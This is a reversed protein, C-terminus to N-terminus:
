ATRYYGSIMLYLNGATFNTAGDIYIVLTSSGPTVYSLGAPLWRNASGVINMQVPILSYTGAASAFPLGVVIPGANLGTGVGLAFIVYMEVYCFPGVRCYSAASTYTPSGCTMSGASFTPTWSSWSTGAAGTGQFVLSAPTTVTLAGSFTAAGAVALTGAVGVNGSTAAVTFLNAGVTFLSGPSVNGIGVNGSAGRIVMLDTFSSQAVPTTNSVSFAIDQSTTTFLRTRWSGSTGNYALDMGYVNAGQANNGYVLIGPNLSTTSAALAANTQLYNAVSAASPPAFTGVGASSVSAVTTGVGNCFNVGGSGTDYNFYVANAGNANLVVGATTARISNVTPSNATGASYIDLYAGVSLQQRAATLGGFAASGISSVVAVTTTGGCFRTGGTGTNNYNLYAAGNNSNSPATIGINTGDAWLGAYTQGVILGNPLFIGGAVTMPGAFPRTQSPYTAPLTSDFVKTGTPATTTGTPNPYVTANEVLEISLSAISYTPYLVLYVSTTGDANTYCQVGGNSIPWSGTLQQYDYVFGFAGRNTFQFVVNSRLGVLYGIQAHVLISDNTGGSPTPLTAVLWYTTNGLSLPGTTFNHVEGSVTGSFTAAGTVALSAFTGLGAASVSAVISTASCFNVIGNGQGTGSYGLYIAGTGQNTLGISTGDWWVGTRTSGNVTLGNITATGTVTLTSSMTQAGSFTNAASLSAAGLATCAGGATTANTGGSGIPLATGLTIAPLSVVSAGPSGTHVFTLTSTPLTGPGIVDQIYWTDPATYSGNYFYAGVFAIAPSSYNTGSVATGTTQLTLLNSFTSLSAVTLTSSMTQAGSFTNAASLSAYGSLSTAANNFTTWNASSLLGSASASATPIAAVAATAAGAADYATSATTAATGLGLNTRATTASALDSLNNTKQLSTALVGAAVGAADYATSATTAASGLGLNTRSTAASAVDSLNNAANLPTFGLAAQKSNFTTWNASSLL